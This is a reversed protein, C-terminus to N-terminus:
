QEYDKTLENFKNNAEERKKDRIEINMRMMHIHRMEEKATMAYLLNRVSEKRRKYFKIYFQQINRKDIQETTMDEFKRDSLKLFQVHHCDIITNIRAVILMYKRQYEAIITQHLMNEEYNEKIWWNNIDNVEKNHESKLADFEKQTM